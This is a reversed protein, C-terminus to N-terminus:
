KVTLVFEDDFNNECFILDAECFVHGDVDAYKPSVLQVKPADLQVINGVGVGHVLQLASLTNAEALAFPNFTALPPMEFTIRGRVDRGAIDVANANALDRYVLKQNVNLELARLGLAVGGFAFTPTNVKGGEKPAQWGTFDPDIIAADDRAGKLGMGQAIRLYPLQGAQWVFSPSCRYGLIKHRLGDLYFWASASEEGSSVPKYEVKTSATVTEALGGARLVAAYKPAAGAAGAGALEVEGTLTSHILAQPQMVNGLSAKALERALATAADTDIAVNRMMLADAVGPAADVGYTTERKFTICKLAFKKAM